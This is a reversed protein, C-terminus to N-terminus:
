TFKEHKHSYYRMLTSDAFILHRCSVQGTGTQYYTGSSANYVTTQGYDGGYTQRYYFFSCMLVMVGEFDSM